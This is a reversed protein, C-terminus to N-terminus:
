SAFLNFNQLKSFFHEFLHLKQYITANTCLVGAFHNLVHNVGVSYFLQFSEGNTNTREFLDNKWKKPVNKTEENKTEASKKTKENKKPLM